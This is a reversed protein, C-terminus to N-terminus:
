SPMVDHLSLNLAPMSDFMPGLWSKLAEKNLIIVHRGFGAEQVCKKINKM